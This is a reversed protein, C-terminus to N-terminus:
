WNFYTDMETVIFLIKRPARFEGNCDVEEIFTQQEYSWREPYALRCADFVSTRTKGVNSASNKLYFCGERAGRCVSSFIKGELSPGINPTRQLEDILEFIGESANGKLCGGHLFENRIINYKGEVANLIDELTSNDFHEQIELAKLPDDIDKDEIYFESIDYKDKQLRRLLAYKKLRIYYLEFNNLEAFEYASKLFDLGGDRKYIEASNEHRDIEQDVEIPTLITAGETYLKKINIFCIRVVKIDFDTPSIDPYEIFLLPNKMLCGIIQRYAM